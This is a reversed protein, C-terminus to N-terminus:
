CRIVKRRRRPLMRQLVGDRQVLAHHLAAGVHGLILLALLAVCGKHAFLLLESLRAQKPLLDPVQFLGFWNVSLGAASAHMWGALPALVLLLYLLSHSAAAAKRQWLPM